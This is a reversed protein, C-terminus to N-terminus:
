SLFRARATQMSYFFWGATILLIVMLSIDLMGGVKFIYKDLLRIMGFIVFVSGMLVERWWFYIALAEKDNCRKIEDETFILTGPEKTRRMRTGSFLLYIGFGLIVLDFVAMILLAITENM